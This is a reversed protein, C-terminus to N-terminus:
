LWLLSEHFRLHKFPQPPLRLRPSSDLFPNLRPYGQWFVQTNVQLSLIQLAKQTRVEGLVALPLPLAGARSFLGVTWPLQRAPGSVATIM